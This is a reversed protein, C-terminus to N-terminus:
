DLVLHAGRDVGPRRALAQHREAIQVFIAAHEDGVDGIADARRLPFFLGFRSPRPEYRTDPIEDPFDGKCGGKAFPSLPPNSRSVGYARSFLIFCIRSASISASSSNDALQPGPPSNRGLM